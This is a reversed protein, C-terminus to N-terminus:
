NGRDIWGLCSADVRVFVVCRRCRVKVHEVLMQAGKKMARLEEVEAKLATNEQALRSTHGSRNTM